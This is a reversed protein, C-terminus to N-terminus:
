AARGLCALVDAVVHGPRVPAASIGTREHIRAFTTRGMALVQVADTLARPRLGLLADVASPSALLWTAAGSERRTRPARDVPVLHYLAVVRADPRVRLVEAGGADSTLVVLTAGGRSRAALDAAGLAGAVDVVIGRAALTRATRPATALWRADAPLLTPDLLVAATPTPVLIDVPGTLASLDLKPLPARRLLSVATAAVGARRLLRAMRDADPAARGVYLRRGM